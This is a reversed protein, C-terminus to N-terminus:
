EIEGWDAGFVEATFLYVEIGPERWADFDMGAKHACCYGLFEEVSWGTETAVQPLFCGSTRGDTVYIGDVGLRLSAPDDTKVMSSLVSIEIDLQPWEKETIRDSGFRPDYMCSQVAMQCITEILPKDSEFQGICGRLQEHNKLTVFCGQHAMLDPDDTTPEYVPKGAVAAAVTDKAVKLLVNKQDDNM